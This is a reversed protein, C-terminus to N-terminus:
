DDPLHTDAELRAARELLEELGFAADDLGAAVDGLEAFRGPVTALTFDRPDVDELEDWTIPTSVTGAPVGRLSYAAALTHDRANQNFDIFVHRPDRDKRWWAVTAHDPLRAAMESAFAWAARRVDGFEWEPRIRVYVHLGSGGSTKPYGTMGLEDLLARAVAAVLRVDDFTADPMPDLDIRWEDPRDVDTSRVNWPHFEVTSMQVAWVIDAVSAPAVEDAHLGYRPFDLRVTPVWAPAGRPVRKSYVKEGALGEPFRHLMTPRDRTARLIGEGVALYYRAVDLKTWGQEPFYVRNPSSLRVTRGDVELEVPEGLGAGSRGSGGKGSARGSARGSAGKGSAGAGRRGSGAWKQSGPRAQGRWHRRAETVGTFPTGAADLAAALVAITRPGVGKISGIDLLPAGALDSLRQYGSAELARAASTTLGESWAPEAM